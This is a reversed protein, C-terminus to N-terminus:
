RAHIEERNFKYNAPFKIHYKKFVAKLIEKRTRKAKFFTIKEGKLVKRIKELEEEKEVEIIVKM